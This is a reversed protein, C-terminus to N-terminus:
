NHQCPSGQLGRSDLVGHLPCAGDMTSYTAAPLASSACNTTAPAGQGFFTLAQSYSPLLQGASPPPSPPFRAVLSLGSLIVMVCTSTHVTSRGFTFVMQGASNAQASGTNAITTAAQSRYYTSGGGNVAMTNTTSGCGATLAYSFSPDFSAYVAYEYHVNPVLNTITMSM